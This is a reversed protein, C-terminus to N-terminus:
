GRRRTSCVTNSGPTSCTCGTMEGPFLHQDAPQTHPSPGRRGAEQRAQRSLCHVLLGLTAGWIIHAAINLGVRRAPYRTAPPLIRLVPLWGQYSAAWIALGFLMGKLAPSLPIAEAPLAYLAGMATGYQFHLLLTLGIHQSEDVQRALGLRQETRQVIQSPELPFREWGPLYHHMVMMAVTMPVTAVAGSIAGTVVQSAPTTRTLVHKM